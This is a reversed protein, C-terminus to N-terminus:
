VPHHLFFARVDSFYHPPAAHAHVAGARTILAHLPWSFRMYADFPPFESAMRESRVTGIPVQAETGAADAGDGSCRSACATGFLALLTAIWEFAVAAVVSGLSQVGLIGVATHV